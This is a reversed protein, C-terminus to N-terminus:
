VFQNLEIHCISHESVLAKTGDYLKAISNLDKQITKTGTFTVYTDSSHVFGGPTSTEISTAKQLRHVFDDRDQVTHHEVAIIPERLTTVHQSEMELLEISIVTLTSDFLQLLKGHLESTTFQQQTDVTDWGGIMYFKSYDEKEQYAKFSSKAVHGYTAVMQKLLELITMPNFTSADRLKLITVETIAM